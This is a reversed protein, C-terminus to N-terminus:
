AGLMGTRRDIMFGVVVAARGDCAACVFASGRWIGDRVVSAPVPVLQEALCSRCRLQACWQRDDTAARRTGLTLSEMDDGCCGSPARFRVGARSCLLFANGCVRMRSECPDIGMLPINGVKGISTRIKGVLM